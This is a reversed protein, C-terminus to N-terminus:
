LILALGSIFVNILLSKLESFHFLAAPIAIAFVMIASRSVFYTSEYSLGDLKRIITMCLIGYVININLLYRSLRFHGNRNLYPISICVMTMFAPALISTEFGQSLTHVSFLMAMGCALIM